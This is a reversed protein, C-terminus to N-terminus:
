VQTKDALQHIERFKLYKYYTCEANYIALILGASGDMFGARIIYTRIFAWFGHALAHVLSARLKNKKHLLEISGAGSYRNM